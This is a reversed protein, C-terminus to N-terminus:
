YDNYFALYNTTTKPESIIAMCFMSEVKNDTTQLLGTADLVRVKMTELLTRLKDKNNEDELLTKLQDERPYVQDMRIMDKLQNDLDSVTIKRDNMAVTVKALRVEQNVPMGATAVAKQLESGAVLNSVKDVM